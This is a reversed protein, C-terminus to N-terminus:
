APPEKIDICTEPAVTELVALLHDVRLAVCGETPEFRPQAVHIFIASGRGAVVPDDNYGIEVFLDYLPDERWLVEHSASYPRKVAMNYCLDAPDDCWGDDEEIPQVPLGTRPRGIRDPRYWLRRLPFRGVPTTGDGERKVTSTGNRGLACRYFAGDFRVVGIPLVILDM